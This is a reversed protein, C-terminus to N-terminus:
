RATIIEGSKLRLSTPRVEVRELHPPQILTRAREAKVLVMEDSFEVDAEALGTEPKFYVLDDSRTPRAARDPRKRAPDRDHGGRLPKTRQWPFRVV